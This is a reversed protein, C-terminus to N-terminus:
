TMGAGAGAGAFGHGEFDSDAEGEDSDDAEEHARTDVRADWRFKARGTCAAKRKRRMRRNWVRASAADLEKQVALREYMRKRLASMPIRDGYASSPRTAPWSCGDDACGRSDRSFVLQRLAWLEWQIAQSERAVDAARVLVLEADSLVALKTVDFESSPPTAKDRLLESGSGCVRKALSPGGSDRWAAALAAWLTAAGAERDAHQGACLLASGVRCLVEAVLTLHREHEAIVAVRVLNELAGLVADWSEATVRLARTASDGRPLRSLELTLLAHAHLTPWTNGDPCLQLAEVALRRAEDLRREDLACRSADVCAMALESDDGHERALDLAEQALDRACPVTGAMGPEGKSSDVCTLVLRTLDSLANLEEGVWSCAKAISRYKTLHTLSERFESKDLAVQGLVRYAIAVDTDRIGRTTSRAAIAACAVEEAAASEGVSNLAAALNAQETAQTVYDGRHGAAAVAERHHRIRADHDNRLFAANALMAHARSRCAHDAAFDLAADLLTVSQSRAVADRALANGGAMATEAILNRQDAALGALPCTATSAIQGALDHMAALAAFRRKSYERAFAVAVGLVSATPAQGTPSSRVQEVWAVAHLFSGALTEDNNVARNGADVMWSLLTPLAARHATTADEMPVEAPMSRCVADAAAVMGGCIKQRAEREDVPLSRSDDLRRRALAARARAAAGLPSASTPSATAFTAFNSLLTCLASCYDAGAVGLLNRKYLPSVMRWEHYTEPMYTEHAPPSRGPRRGTRQRLVHRAAAACLGVAEYVGTAPRPRAAAGIGVPRRATPVARSAAPASPQEAAAPAEPLGLSWRVYAWRLLLDAALLKRADAPAEIARICDLGASRDRDAWEPPSSLWCWAQRAAIGRIAGVQMPPVSVLRWPQSVRYVPHLDAAVSQVLAPEGLAWVRRKWERSVCRLAVLDRHHLFLLLECVCDDALCEM